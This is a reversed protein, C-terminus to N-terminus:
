QRELASTSRKVSSVIKCLESAGGSAKLRYASVVFMKGNPAHLADESLPQVTCQNDEDVSVVRVPQREFFIM